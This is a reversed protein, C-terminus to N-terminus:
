RIFEKFFRVDEENIIAVFRTGQDEYSKNVIQALRELESASKQDAFPIFLEYTAYNHLLNEIKSTLAEINNSNLASIFIAGPFRGKLLELKSAELRDTKNFVIITKIDKAGISDLVKDVESIYYEFRSDSVDVTHLLLNAETVEKLTARFSAVLHHPLQSIFGVTDSLVIEKGRQLQIMRVTSGLTAFLKDEVLVGANTLNNFLTSKGANTYGVLCVRKLNARQKSQTDKQIMIAKLKKEIIAIQNRIIRKDIELQTEGMGRSASGGGQGGGSAAVRSGEFHSWLKKLRPLQYQLQALEVQLTAEYTQAHHHFISLIIETRDSVELKLMQSVNKGQTPSLENDFIVVGAGHEHALYRIEALFGKGVFTAGDIKPRKQIRKYVAKVGATKALLELEALSKEKEELDERGVCVGVLIALNPDLNANDDLDLDMENEIENELFDETMYEGEYESDIGPCLSVRIALGSNSLM